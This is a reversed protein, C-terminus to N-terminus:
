KFQHEMKEAADLMAQVQDRLQKTHSHLRVARQVDRVRRRFKATAQSYAVHLPREAEIVDQLTHRAIDHENNGDPLETFLSRAYKVTSYTQLNRVAELFRLAWLHALVTQFQFNRMAANWASSILPQLQANSLRIYSYFVIHHSLSVLHPAHNDIMPPSQPIGFDMESSLHTLSTNAPHLIHRYGSGNNNVPLPEGEHHTPSFHFGFDLPQLIDVDRALLDSNRRVIPPCLGFDFPETVQVSSHSRDSSIDVVTCVNCFHGSSNRLMQEGAIGCGFSSSARDDLTIDVATERKNKSSLYQQLHDSNSVISGQKRHYNCEKHDHDGKKEGDDDGAESATVFKGAQGEALAVGQNHDSQLAKLVIGNDTIALDPESSRDSILWTFLTAAFLIVGEDQRSRLGVCEALLWIKVNEHRLSTAFEEVSSCKIELARSM